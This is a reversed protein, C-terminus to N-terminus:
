LRFAVLVSDLTLTLPTEFTQKCSKISGAAFLIAKEQPVDPPDSVKQIAENNQNMEFRGLCKLEEV